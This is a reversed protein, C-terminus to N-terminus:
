KHRILYDFASLASKAGEGMAIIIQKYPVNTCDGAAFVGEMSTAGRADVVIEGYRNRDLTEGLWETNPMLGIQVFVGDVDVSSTKQTERDTYTLGQVRSTGEIRETKANVVIRVNSLSRLNNQLVADAKLEPLFEFLTVHSAVNALDIAAEVGSNGGGIVAVRKGKFLPGECHPCYAVGKGKLEREGEIGLERWRAGTSLIVTKAKLVMGSETEVEIFSSTKRLFRATQRKVVDVAYTKVHEELSAALRPGETAKVSIFNEISATDLVQGGFRETVIGTRIGKRALYIAASAGSPGGGVVLTDYPAREEPEDTADSLKALIDEIEIRGREFEAGNLFTIPVSLIDRSKVEEQFLGGDVMTHSINSNLVAMTNLAQVVDPCVHCSLSIFTEFHHVGTIGKIRKILQDDIKPPYGSAQLLALVLSTFEHGMPIGAFSVGTAEGNKFIQFSPVRQTADFVQKVAIRDSLASVEEMLTKMELSAASEDINLHIEIPNVCKTLYAQLQTRLNVDLM